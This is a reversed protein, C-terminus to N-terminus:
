LGGEVSAATIRSTALFKRAKSPGDLVLGTVIGGAVSIYWSGQAMFNVVFSFVVILYLNSLILLYLFRFRLEVGRILATMSGGLLLPFFVVGPLGFDSDLNKVYTATNTPVPTYYDEEFRPESRSVGLRELLRFVPWFAFEGWHGRRAEHSSALYMSLAVPPASFNSYISPFVPIFETIKEMAPTIGPFDVGLGRTSSVFAFGGILIVLALSAAVIQQWRKVSFKTSRPTYLFAVLFLFAAMIVGGRFMGFINNLTELILPASAALTLKGVSATYVGALICAVFLFSSFYPVGTALGSVRETYIDGANVFVAVLPNGFHNAVGRIQDAVGIAGLFSLFLISRKLRIKDVVFSPRPARLVPGSLFLVFASGFYLCISAIAAYVWAMLRVPYYQILKFEYSIFCFGWLASYLSLPNFWRHFWARGLWVAVGTMVILLIIMWWNADM